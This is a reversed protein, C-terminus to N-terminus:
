GPLGRRHKGVKNLADFTEGNRVLAAFAPDPTFLSPDERSLRTLARQVEFLGALDASKMPGGRWRPFQIGLVCAVDIDSPRLAMDTRLMRAGTNAMAAIVRLRIEDESLALPVPVTDFLLGALGDDVQAHGQADWRYFGQGDARGTHGAAVLLDLADLHLSAFGADRAMLRGRTLVVQLGLMDIQRFIGQPLGWQALVRDIREIPVGQALMSLGADRAAAIIREGLTGGGTGARLAVRGLRGRVLQVVSAVAWGDTQTAPIVEVLRGPGIPAHFHLGLVRDPVTSSDAIPDIPLLGSQTALITDPGAVASLAAFVQAKTRPVEAVAEIILGAQGLDGLSASGQWRALADPARADMDAIRQRALTLAEDTREFQVVPLGAALCLRAIACATPGGGVIGVRDIPRAAGPRAEPMNAARREARTVHVLARSQASHRADEFVQDELALGAEFPLLLAAEVAAVIDRTAPIPSPAVDERRKAIEAQFAAPDAFGDTRDRTPARPAETLSAALALAVPLADPVDLADFLGPLTAAPLQRSSLMLDLAAGAGVLRPLRQSGGAGPTLGLSLDGLAIQAGAQAVRATAALALELGAGTAAGSLAAVVPKGLGEIRLALDGPTPAVLPAALERLDLGACFHGGQGALVVARLDGDRAVHDLATMLAVRLPVSLMNLPPNAMRIVAVDGQRDIRVLDSSDTM